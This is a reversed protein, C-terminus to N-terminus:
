RVKKCEFKWELEDDYDYNFNPNISLLTPSIFDFFAKKIKNSKYIQEEEYDYDCRNFFFAEKVLMEVVASQLGEISYNNEEILIPSAKFGGVVFNMFSNIFETGGLTKMQKVMEAFEYGYKLDYNLLSNFISILHKDTVDGTGRGSYFSALVSLGSDSLIKTAISHRDSIHDCNVSTTNDKNMYEEM